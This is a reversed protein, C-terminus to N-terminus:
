RTRSAACWRATSSSCRTPTSSAKPPTCPSSRFEHAVRAPSPSAAASAAPARAAAAAIPEAGFSRPPWASCTAPRLSARRRRGPRDRGLRAARRRPLQRRLRGAPPSRARRAAVAARRRLVLDFIMLGPRQALLKLAAYAHTVSEAPRRCSSRAAGARLTRRPAARVHPLARPAEAHVLSSTSTAAGSRCARRPLERALRAHRRAADAPRARGPLRAAAVAARRLRRPRHLGARRTRAATDAADVVLTNCGREAFVTALASSCRRRRLAVHPNAVVPVFRPAPAPSCAACATPRTPRHRAAIRTM